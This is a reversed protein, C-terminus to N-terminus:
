RDASSNEVVWVFLRASRVHPHHGRRGSGRQSLWLVGHRRADMRRHDLRGPGRADGHRSSVPWASRGNTYQPIASMAIAVVQQLVEPLIPRGTDDVTRIYIMPARTWRRLPQLADPKECGNRAIARFYAQDFGSLVFADLDVVRSAGSSFFGTHSVDALARSVDPRPFSSENSRTSLIIALLAREGDRDARRRNNQPGWM